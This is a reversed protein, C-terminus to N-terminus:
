KKFGNIVGLQNFVFNFLDNSIKWFYMNWQAVHQIQHCNAYTQMVHANNLKITKVHVLNQLNLFLCLYFLNVM